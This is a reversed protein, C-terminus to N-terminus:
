KCCMYADPPPAHPHWARLTVTAMPEVEGGEDAIHESDDLVGQAPEAHWALGERTLRLVFADLLTKDRIPLVLLALGGPALRSALVRSLPVRQGLDYLLDSGVVLDYTSDRQLSPAAGGVDLTAKRLQVALLSRPDAAALAAGQADAVDDEWLFRRVHILGRGGAGRWTWPSEDPAAGDAQLAASAALTSLLGPLADTLTVERAGLASCLLGCLGVGAGLELVRKDRVVDPSAALLRSLLRAAGWVRWGLGGSAYDTEHLTVHAESPVADDDDASRTVAFTFTRVCAM